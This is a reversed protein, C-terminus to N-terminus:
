AAMGGDVSIAAGNVFSAADSLLFAVAEGIESPEGFRRNPQAGLFSERVTNSVDIISHLMPTEIAGPCVANVRLNHRGLELAASKTLGVVAHKSAAYIAMKNVGRVGAASATNVISGPGGQSRMQRVQARMCLWVGRVNVQMVRDFMEETADILATLPEPVAANNFAGDLRGYTAAAFAVAGDVQVKDTVDVPFFSGAGGAAEIQAVTEEGGARNVDCVVVKAGERAFIKASARGIGSAAGTVMVVKDNLREAM